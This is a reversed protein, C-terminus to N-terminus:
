RLLANTCTFFRLPLVPFSLQPVSTPPSRTGRRLQARAGRPPLSRVRAASM